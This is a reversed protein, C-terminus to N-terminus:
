ANSGGEIEADAGVPLGGLILDSLHALEGDGAAELRDHVLLDIGRGLCPRDEVSHEGVHAGSADLRDGHPGEVPEV